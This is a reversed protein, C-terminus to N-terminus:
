VVVGLGSRKVLLWCALVTKGTAKILVCFAWSLIKLGDGRSHKEGTDMLIQQICCTERDAGAEM